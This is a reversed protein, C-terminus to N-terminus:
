FIVGSINFVTLQEVIPHFVVPYCLSVGSMMEVVSQWKTQDVVKWTSPTLCMLCM